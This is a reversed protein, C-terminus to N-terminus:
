VLTGFCDFGSCDPHPFNNPVVAADTTVQFFRGGPSSFVARIYFGLYGSTPNEFEIRFGTGLDEVPSEIWTVNSRVASFGDLVNWRWDRRDPTVSIASFASVSLPTTDSTLVIRGGTSTYDKTWEVSPRPYDELVSITFTELMDVLKAQVVDDFPHGTNEIIWIHKDGTLDNYFYDYDDVMFFEDSAASVMLKPMTLYQRYYYPDTIYSLELLEPEDILALVGFNWYDFM